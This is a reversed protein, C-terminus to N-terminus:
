DQNQADHLRDLPNAAADPDPALRADLLRITGDPLLEVGAVDLRARRAASISRKIAVAGAYHPKLRHHYGLIRDAEEFYRRDAEANMRLAGQGQLGEPM